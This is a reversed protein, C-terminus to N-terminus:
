FLIVVGRAKGWGRRLLQFTAETTKVGWECVGRCGCLSVILINFTSIPWYEYNVISNSHEGGAEEQEQGLNAFEGGPLCLSWIDASPDPNKRNECDSSLAKYSKRSIHVSHCM